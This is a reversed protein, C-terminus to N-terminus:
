KTKMLALATFAILNMVTLYVCSVFIGTIPIIFSSILLAGICSGLLDASYIVGLDKKSDGEMYLANAFQFHCGGLFGSIIILISLYIETIQFIIISEIRSLAFFSIAMIIPLFSVILQIKKLWEFTDAKKDIKRLSVWGGLALGGM